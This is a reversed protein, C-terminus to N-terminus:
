SFLLYFKWKNEKNGLFSNATKMKRSKHDIMNQASTKKIGVQLARKIEIRPSWGSASYTSFHNEREGFSVTLSSILHRVLNKDLLFFWFFIHIYLLFQPDNYILDNLLSNTPSTHYFFYFNNSFFTLLIFLLIYIISFLIIFSLNFILLTVFISLNSMTLPM